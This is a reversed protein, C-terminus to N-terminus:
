APGYLCFPAWYYPHDFRPQQKVAQIAAQLAVARNAKNEVLAVYFHKVLEPSVSTPMKWMCSIVSRCGARLFAGTIGVLEEGEGHLDARSTECASLFALSSQCRAAIIESSTLLGDELM